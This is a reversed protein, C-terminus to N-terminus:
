DGALLPLDTEALPPHQDALRADLDIQKDGREPIRAPQVDASEAVLPLFAPKSPQFAREAVEAPHGLLNQEVVVPAQDHPVVPYCALHLEVGPQVSERLM